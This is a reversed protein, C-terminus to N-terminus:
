LAHARWFAFTRLEEDDIIVRTDRFEEDSVQTLATMGTVRQGIAKL